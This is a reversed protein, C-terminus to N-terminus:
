KNQPESILLDKVDVSLIKAIVYLTELRPQNKNQV